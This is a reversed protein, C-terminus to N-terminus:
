SKWYLTFFRLNSRLHIFLNNNSVVIKQPSAEKIGESKNEPEPRKARMKGVSMTGCIKNKMSVRLIEILRTRGWRM